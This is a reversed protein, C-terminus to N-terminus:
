NGTITYYNTHPNQHAHTAPTNIVFHKAASRRDDPSALPDGPNSYKALQDCVGNRNTASWNEGISFQQRITNPPFSASM